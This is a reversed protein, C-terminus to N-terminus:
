WLGALDNSKYCIELTNSVPINEGLYILGDQSDPDCDAGFCYKTINCDNETYYPPPLQQGSCELRLV